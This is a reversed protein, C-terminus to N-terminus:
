IKKVFEKRLEENYRDLADEWTPLENFGNNVLNQKSLRSNTPRTAKTPYESSPIANLKMDINNSEFIAKAFEYWSVFGRNTAHYVGYKETESMDILLKSLDVTYTPSGVQDSVVNLEKRTESLKLMTRVFNKGNIGFVWSIRVVFTKNHKLAELEGLYKTLGYISKPNAEDNVEYPTNKEGDFIYDTSIYFLKSGVIKAAETINKTGEVNVKTCLEENDEAQDVNTYAACHFIVDPKFDTIVEKVIDKDTIDMNDYDVGLINNYGRNTLEKVIDYGLQGKVGTVLYKVM